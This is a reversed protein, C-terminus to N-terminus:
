AVTNSNQRGQSPDVMSLAVVDGRGQRTTAASIVVSCSGFLIVSSTKSSFRARSWCHMPTGAPFRSPRERSGFSQQGACNQIARNACFCNLSLSTLASHSVSVASLKGFHSVCIFLRKQMRQGATGPIWVRPEFLARCHANAQLRSMVCHSPLCLCPTLGNLLIHPRKTKGWARLRM